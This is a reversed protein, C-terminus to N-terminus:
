EALVIQTIASLPEEFGRFGQYGSPDSHHANSTLWIGTEDYCIWADANGPDEAFGVRIGPPAAVFEGNTSVIRSVRKGSTLKDFIDTIM